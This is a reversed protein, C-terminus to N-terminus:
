FPKYLFHLVLIAQIWDARSARLGCSWMFNDLASPVDGSICNTINGSSFFYSRDDFNVFRILLASVNM